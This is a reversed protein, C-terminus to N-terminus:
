GFLRQLFGRPKPEAVAPDEPAVESRELYREATEEALDRNHEEMNWKLRMTGGSQERSRNFDRIEAPPNRRHMRGRLFARLTYLGTVHKEYYAWRDLGAKEKYSSWRGELMAAEADKIDSVLKEINIKGM